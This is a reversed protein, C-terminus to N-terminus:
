SSHRYTSAVFECCVKYGAGLAANGVGDAQRESAVGQFFSFDVM